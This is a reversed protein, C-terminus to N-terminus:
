YIEIFIIDIRVHMTQALDRFFALDKIHWTMVKLDKSLVADGSESFIYAPMLIYM